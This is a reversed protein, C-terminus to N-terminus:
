RAVAEYFGLGAFSVVSAPDINWQEYRLLRGAAAAVARLFTYLPSAGCWRLEDRNRRVLEWFGAADGEALREIRARDREAVEQMRGEDAAAAFSDGYRRGIHAMDVGLVWFLRRGERAHLEALADFFGRVAPADEPSGGELLSKAFPGILIPLIRVEPGLLHQLFVVQFEISHEVSHCYDERTVAEPAARELREVLEVAVPADGLPTRFPKRTLGFRDPAGYHSTGLVVFTRDAASPLERYAAAYSRHGGDPSVHPAAIGILGDGRAEPSSGDLYRGLTSRLEAPDEPYGGGGAHSAQRVPAEEFEREREEKMQLYTENVLFGSARLGDALQELVPGVELTGTAEVLAERLDLDTRQGDFFRLFPLLPPPIIMMNPSFGLPDRVLVGPRDPVPSPLVDLDPRFPPLKEAL